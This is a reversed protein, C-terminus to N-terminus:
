RACHTVKIECDTGGEKLCRAQALAQATRANGSHDAGWVGNSSAALAGCHNFFWTAVECDSAGCESKARDEAQARNAYHDSYGYSGNKPSYAIAGYSTSPGSSGQGPDGYCTQRYEVCHGEKALSCVRECYSRAPTGASIALIIGVAVAVGKRVAM